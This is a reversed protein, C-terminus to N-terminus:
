TRSLKLFLIQWEDDSVDVFKKDKLQPEGGVVWWGILRNL